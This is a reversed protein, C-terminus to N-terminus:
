FGYRTVFELRVSEGPSLDPDGPDDGEHLTKWSSLELGANLNKTVDYSVNGFIQHNYKRGTLLDSDVPDDITFGVHSHLRPTWDYWVEGWGGVSRIGDRRCPCVGRAIGGLFTGLNEGYFFEGQIGLRSTIPVHVDANLSWTGIRADDAPPLFNPPGSNARFDFGQEGIHGSVGFTIPRCHPGRPGLTITTRGELVPWDVPERDVDPAADLDSVIDQNLSGQVTLLVLDSCALYRELRFQTRRYGLNGAAWGVSYMLTNPYLPSIVDWTQGILLRFTEDKAEWYAHRLLVGPKNEVIFSGHFDIELRGGSRACNLWPIRPGEVNLGVRTRRADIIFADEGEKDRSPVFLTYAGPFTRDTEYIMSAWLVGYPVIKFDGKTWALGKLEAKLEDLTFYAVDEDADSTSDPEPTLGATQRVKPVPTENAVNLPTAEVAPLRRPEAWRGDIDLPSAAARLGLASAPRAPEGDLGRANPPLAATWLIILVSSLRLPQKM